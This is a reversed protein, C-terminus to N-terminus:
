AVLFISHRTLSERHDAGPVRADVTAAASDNFNWLMGVGPELDFQVVGWIARFFCTRAGM